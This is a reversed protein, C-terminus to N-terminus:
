ISAAPSLGAVVPRLTPLLAPLCVHPGRAPRKEFIRSQADRREAEAPPERAGLLLRDGDSDEVVERAGEGRRARDGGRDAGLDGDIEDVLAAANGALVLHDRDAGIRLALGVDRDVLGLPQHALLLDVDDEADERARMRHREGGFALLRLLDQPDGGRHRGRHELALVQMVDKARLDMGVLVSLGRGAEEDLVGLRPEAALGLVHLHRDDVLVPGVAGAAAIGVIAIALLLAKGDHELLGIRRTGGVEGREHGLDLARLGIDDEVGAVIGSM